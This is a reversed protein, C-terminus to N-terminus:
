IWFGQIQLSIYHTGGSLGHALNAYVNGNSHVSVVGSDMMGYYQINGGTGQSSDGDHWLVFSGWNTNQFTGYGGPWGAGSGGWSTASDTTIGFLSVAHDGQGATGISYGNIHYWGLVQLARVGSPLGLGTTSFSTFTNGTVTACWGIPSTLQCYTHAKYNSTSVLNGGGICVTGDPTIRMRETCTNGTFMAINGNTSCAIISLQSSAGPGYDNTMGFWEGSTSTFTYFKASCGYGKGNNYFDIGGYRCDSTRYNSYPILKCLVAVNGNASPNVYLSGNINIQCSTSLSIFATAGGNNNCFSVSPMGVVNNNGELMLTGSSGAYRKVHLPYEPTCTNIGINGNGKIFMLPKSVGCNPTSSTGFYIGNNPDTASYDFFALHLAEGYTGATQCTYEKYGVFANLGNDTFAIGQMAGYASSCTRMEILQHNNSDILLLTNANPAAAGYACNAYIHVKSLASNTGIGVNGGDRQIYLDRVVGAPTYSQIVAGNSTDGGIRLEGCASGFRTHWVDSNCYVHLISTPCATNIGVNGNPLWSTRVGVANDYVYLNDTSDNNMQLWWKVAGATAFQINAETNVNCARDIRIGGVGDGISSNYVTFQLCPTQTGIGVNGGNIYSSGSSNLYVKSANTSDSLQTYTSGTADFGVIYGENSAAANQIAFVIGNANAVQTYQRQPATKNLGVFGSGSIFLGGPNMYVSGSFVHTNGIANGFINSGSSYVVSSTITQVVLTQATLTGTSTFSGSQLVSGTITQTGIFINSGTTAFSATKNNLSSTYSELASLRTINSGSTTELSSFRNNASGTYTLISASFANFSATQANFSSTLTFVTSDLGDLLEANSAYSASLVPSSGSLQGSTNITALTTSGSVFSVNGSADVKVVNGLFGTDRTKSM